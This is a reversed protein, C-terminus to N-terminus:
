LEAKHAKVKSLFEAFFVAFLALFIGGFLSIVVILKKGVGVPAISQMPETLARTELLNKSEVGLKELLIGKELQFQQNEVLKNLLEDRKNELNIQLEEELDALNGRSARLEADVMLLALAKGETRSELIASEKMKESSKLQGITEKIRKKLLIAKKDLRKSQSLLLQEENKLKTIENNVRQKSLQLDKRKLLSIRKHDQKVRGVISNLLGSYANKYEESGKLDIFIISSNKELKAKIQPASSIEPNELLYNQSALPIYGQNIKALVSSPAEINVLRGQGDYAVGGIELATSYTYKDTMFLAISIGALLALLIISLFLSRRMVLVLWLDLLSIEDDDNPSDVMVYRVASDIISSSDLRRVNDMDNKEHKMKKAEKTLKISKPFYVV